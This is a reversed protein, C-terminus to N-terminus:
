ISQIRKEVNNWDEITDIDYIEEDEMIYPYINSGSLLNKEIINSKIIDICGNHLYTDPLKQRCQNYHEKIFPFTNTPVAPKLRNNSELIYMKFPSKYNNKVVTRLSDYDDYNQIFKEICSNLTDLKRLPYTPRLQIIVDPTSNNEKAWQLYHKFFDIDPSLDASIEKPRLFPVNAGHEKAINAIEESDTTVIVDNVYKSKKALMISYYILPYGNLKKINKNRIGKSGGRAPILAVIKM